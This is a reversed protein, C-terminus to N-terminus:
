RMPSSSDHSDVFPNNHELSNAMSLSRIVTYGDSSLNDLSDSNCGFANLFLSVCIRRYTDLAPPLKIPLLQPPAASASSAAPAPFPTGASDVISALTHGLRWLSQLRV